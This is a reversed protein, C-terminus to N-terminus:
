VFKMPHYLKCLEEGNLIKLIIFFYYIVKTLKLKRFIVMQLHIFYLTIVIAYSGM